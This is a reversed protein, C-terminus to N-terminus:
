KIYDKASVNHVVSNIEALCQFLNFVNENWASM